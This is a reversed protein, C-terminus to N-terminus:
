INTFKFYIRTKYIGELFDKFVGINRNEFTFGRIKQSIGACVTESFVTNIRQSSARM